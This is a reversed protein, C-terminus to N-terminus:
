VTPNYFIEIFLCIQTLKCFFRKKDLMLKLDSAELQSNDASSVPQVQQIAAIAKHITNKKKKAPEMDTDNMIKPKKSPQLDNDSEASGENRLGSTIDRGKWKWYKLPLSIGDSDTEELIVIGKLLQAPQAEPITKFSHSESEIESDEDSADANEAITTLETKM